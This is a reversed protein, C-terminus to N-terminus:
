KTAKRRPALWIFAVASLTPVFASNDTVIAWVALAVCNAAMLYCCFARLATM